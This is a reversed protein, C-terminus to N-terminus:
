TFVFLVSSNLFYLWSSEELGNMVKPTMKPRGFLGVLLFPLFMQFSGCCEHPPPLLRHQM